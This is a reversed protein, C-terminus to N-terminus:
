NELQSLCAMFDKAFEDQIKEEQGFESIDTARNQGLGYEIDWGKSKLLKILEEAQERTANDGLNGEALFFKM